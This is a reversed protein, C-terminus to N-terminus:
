PVKYWVRVPKRPWFDEDLTYTEYFFEGRPDSFGPELRKRAVARAVLPESSYIGINKVNEDTASRRILHQLYYMTTM